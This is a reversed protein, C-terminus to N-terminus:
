RRAAEGHELAAMVQPWRRVLGALFRMFPKHEVQALRHRRWRYEFGMFAAAVLGCGWHAYADWAPSHLALPPIGGLAEIWGGPSRCAVIFGLLLAQVAFLLAWARTLGLAYTAVGPAALMTRGELVAIVTAILPERGPALTMGFVLALAANVLMPLGELWARGAGAVALAVFAGAFALWLLVALPHRVRLAPWLLLTALLIGALAGAWGGAGMTAAGFLAAYAIGVALWRPKSPSDVEAGEEM